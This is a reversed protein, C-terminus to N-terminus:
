PNNSLLWALAEAEDTFVRYTRGRSRMLNEFFRASVMHEPVDLAASRANGLEEPYAMTVFEFIGPISLRGVVGRADLLFRAHGTASSLASIRAFADVTEPLQLPFDGTLVLRVYDGQEIIKINLPVAVGM